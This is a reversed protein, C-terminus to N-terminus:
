IVLLPHICNQDAQFDKVAWRGQWFASLKSILIGSMRTSRQRKGGGQPIPLNQWRKYYHSFFFENQASNLHKIWINLHLHLSGAWVKPSQCSIPAALVRGEETSRTSCWHSGEPPLSRGPSQGRCWVWCRPCQFEPPWRKPSNWVYRLLYWSM